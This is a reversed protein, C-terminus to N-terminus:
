LRYVGVINTAILKYMISYALDLLKLSCLRAQRKRICKPAGSWRKM